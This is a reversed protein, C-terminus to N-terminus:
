LIYHKSGSPSGSLFLDIGGIQEADTLGLYGILRIYGLHQAAFEPLKGHFPQEAKEDREILINFYDYFCM